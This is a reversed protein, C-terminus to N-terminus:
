GRPNICYILYTRYNGTLADKLLSLLLSDSDPASRNLLHDLVKVLPNVGRLDTRSAGGALGFLQLRSRCVDSEVQEPHLKQEVAVSFLSSCRGLVPHTILESADKNLSLLDVVSGDPYFQLCSVSIFVEPAVPSTTRSFLDTLVKRIIRQEAPAGPMEASAGCIMLAGNFGNSISEPLPQLLESHLREMNDTTVVQDFMFSRTDEDNASKYGVRRGEVDFVVCDPNTTFVVGVRTAEAGECMPAETNGPNM